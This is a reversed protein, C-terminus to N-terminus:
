HRRRDGTGPRDSEGASVQAADPPRALGLKMNATVQDFVRPLQHLRAIYNEYDKVTKFPMQTPMSAYSLHVGNFQDVPMEWGNFKAGEIAQRLDRVM